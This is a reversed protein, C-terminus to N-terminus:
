DAEWLMILDEHEDHGAHVHALGLPKFGHKKYFEIARINDEGTGLWIAEHGWERTSSVAQEMLGAAIGKGQWAPAVYLRWLQIPAYVHLSKPAHEKRLVLYGVVKSDLEAVFFGKPHLAIDQVFREAPLSQDLLAALDALPAADAPTAPRVRFTGDDPLAL